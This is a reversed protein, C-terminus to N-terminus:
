RIKLLEMKEGVLSLWSLLESLFDVALGSSSSIIRKTANETVKRM